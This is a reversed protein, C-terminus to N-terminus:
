RGKTQKPGHITDQRTAHREELAQHISKWDSDTLPTAPGSHISKWDSDTLPTAPGSDLGEILLSDIRARRAAREQTERIVSCMYESVTGFGKRAAEAEVFAKLDETLSINMTAM